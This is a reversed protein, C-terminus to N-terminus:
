LYDLVRRSPEPRRSRGAICKHVRGIGEAWRAVDAVDDKVVVM